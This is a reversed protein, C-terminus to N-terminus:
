RPPLERYIRFWGGDVLLHDPRTLRAELAPTSVTRARLEIGNDTEHSQDAIVVVLGQGTRKEDYYPLLPAMITRADTWSTQLAPRAPVSLYAGPLGVFVLMRQGPIYVSRIARAITEADAAKRAYTRLGAFPGSRVLTSQALVPGEWYSAQFNLTLLVLPVMAFTAWTLMADAAEESVALPLLVAAPFLGVGLSMCGLNDSALAVVFGNLLTPLWAWLLLRRREPTPWLLLFFGTLLGLGIFIHLSLTFDFTLGRQEPRLRSFWWLTPLVLLPLLFPRASPLRRGAVWAAFLAPLALPAIVLMSLVIGGLKGLDRPRTLMQEYQMAHQFGQVLGPGVVAAFVLGVAALGALYAAAPKRGACAPTAVAMAGVSVVMPPYAICALLHCAGAAVFTSAPGPVLVRKLGLCLGLAFLQAGLSNYTSTPISFPIFVIPVAAALLAVAPSRRTRVVQYVAAAVGMQLGLYTERLFLVVGDTSSNLKLFLWYFPVTLLSACQRLNIEDVFPLDGLAFRQTIVASFSEDTFDVGYHLRVFSACLVFLLLLGAGMARWRCAGTTM